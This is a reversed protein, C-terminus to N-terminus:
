VVFRQLSLIMFFSNVALFIEVSVGAAKALAEMLPNNESEQSTIDSASSDAIIDFGKNIEILIFHM